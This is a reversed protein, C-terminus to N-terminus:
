ASRGERLRAAVRDFPFWPISNEGPHTLEQLRRVELASNEPTAIDREMGPRTIDYPEHFTEIISVAEDCSITTEYGLLRLEPLCTAEIMQAVSNPLVDHFSAISSTSIGSHARFSSNGTWVAGNEGPIEGAIQLEGIDDLEITAAGTFAPTAKWPWPL